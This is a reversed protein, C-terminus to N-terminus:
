VPQILYVPLRQCSYPTRGRKPSPGSTVLMIWKFVLNIYTASFKVIQKKNIHNQSKRYGMSDETWDSLYGAKCDSKWTLQSKAIMYHGQAKTDKHTFHGVIKLSQIGKVRFNESCWSYM